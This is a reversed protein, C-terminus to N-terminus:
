QTPPVDAEEVRAVAAQGLLQADAHDLVQEQKLMEALVKGM